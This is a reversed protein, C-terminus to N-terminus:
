WFRIIKTKLYFKLPRVLTGCVVRDFIAIGGFLDLMPHQPSPANSQMLNNMMTFAIGPTTFRVRGFILPSFLVFVIGCIMVRKANCGKVAAGVTVFIIGVVLFIGFTWKLLLHRFSAAGVSAQSVTTAERAAEDIPNRNKPFGTAPDLGTPDKIKVQVSVQNEM